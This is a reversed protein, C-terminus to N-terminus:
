CSSLITDKSAGSVGWSSQEGTNGGLVSWGENNAARLLVTEGSSVDWPPRGGGHDGEACEGDQGSQEDSQDATMGGLGGSATGVVRRCVVGAVHEECSVYLRVQPGTDQAGTGNM